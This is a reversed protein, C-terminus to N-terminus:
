NTLLEAYALNAFGPLRKTFSRQVSEIADILYSLHPSWVQPAYELLPRVYTKFALILNNVNRSLFCRHILAARQKALAVIGHVHRDFKLDPDVIVGLDTSLNSITLTVGNITFSTVSAEQRGLSLLHCKSHAIPLQWRVSWQHILDLETQFAVSSNQNLLETYIKIDDAFLKSTSTSNVVIVVVIPGLHSDEFRSQVLTLGINFSGRCISTRIRNHWCRTCICM